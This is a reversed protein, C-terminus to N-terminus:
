LYILQDILWILFPFSIMVCKYRKSENIYEKKKIMKHAASALQSFFLILLIFLYCLFMISLYELFSPTFTVAHKSFIYIPLNLSWFVCLTFYFFAFSHSPVCVSVCASFSLFLSLWLYDHSEWDVLSKIELQAPPSSWRTIWYGFIYIM